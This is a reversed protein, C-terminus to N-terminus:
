SRRPPHFFIFDYLIQFVTGFGNRIISLKREGGIHAPEDGPIETVKLRLRAARISSGTEWSNM